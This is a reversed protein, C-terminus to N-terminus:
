NILSYFADANCWRLPSYCVTHSKTISYLPVVLENTNNSATLNIAFEFHASMNDIVAGVWFDSFDFGSDKQFIAPPQIIHDAIGGGGSVSIEGIISCNVCNVTLDQPRSISTLREASRLRDLFQLVSMTIGFASIPPPFITGDISINVSQDLDGAAAAGSPVASAAASSVAVSSATASSGTASSGVSAQTDQRPQLTFVPTTLAVLALTTKHLRMRSLLNNPTRGTTRSRLQQFYSYPFLHSCHSLLKTVWINVEKITLLSQYM